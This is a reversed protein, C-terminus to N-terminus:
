QGGIARLLAEVLAVIAGAVVLFGIICSWVRMEETNRHWPRM